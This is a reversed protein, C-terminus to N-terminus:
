RLIVVLDPGSARVTQGNDLEVVAYAHGDILELDAVTGKGEGAVKVRTGTTFM